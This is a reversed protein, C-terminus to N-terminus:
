GTPQLIQFSSLDQIHQPSKRISVEQQTKVPSPQSSVVEREWDKLFTELGITIGDGQVDPNGSPLKSTASFSQAKKTTSATHSQRYM